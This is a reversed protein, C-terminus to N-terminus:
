KALRRLLEENEKMSAALAARFAPDDAGAGPTTRTRLHRQVIDHALQEPTVGLEEAEKRLVDFGTPDLQLAITM